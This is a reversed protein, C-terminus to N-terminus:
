TFLSNGNIRTSTQNTFSTLTMTHGHTSSTWIFSCGMTTSWWMNNVCYMNRGGMLGIGIPLFTKLSTSKQHIDMLLDLTVRSNVFGIYGVDM